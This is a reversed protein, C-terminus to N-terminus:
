PIVDISYLFLRDGRPQDGDFVPLRIDEGEPPRDQYAGISIRYSGPLLTPPLTIYAVQIFVDREQLQRPNVSIQDSQAIITVPDSLVHNFFNLDPPVQGDVRWINVVPVVDGPRYSEQATRQYGLWTINGGFRVPPAILADDAGQVAYIDYSAPATTQYVGLADALAGSLDMTYVAGPALDGETVPTGRLTWRRLFPLMQEIIEPNPLVFQQRAGANTFLISQRCDIYHLRPNNRNLMLLVRQADSLSDRQVPSNWEPYCLVTRVEDTSRDLYRAIAGLDAYYDERVQDLQPWRVFFDNITWVLNFAFLAIMGSAVIIAGRGRVSDAIVQVGLGFFMALVPLLPALAVFNPTDNSLVAAPLLGILAILALAFRPQRWHRAAVALGLLILTASVLDVLPRGPLNYDPNMDGQFGIAALTEGFSRLIGYYDGFIRGGAALDPRNISSIMYPVAIIIMMLLAFGIYSLRRRSFTLPDRTILTFAIFAMAVLVLLLSVPHIYLSLGLLIGLAAYVSTNTREDEVSRYVPLARALALLVAVVLLPLVSEVMALRGLLISWMMVGMLAAGALGAIHGFLRVGLTYSLALTIIGAWVSLMTYGLTGGGTITTVLGLAAYYVSERGIGDIDLFVAVGGQRVTEMLRVTTIETEHLGPPLEPLHWLRLGGAVLLILVALGYSLRQSM